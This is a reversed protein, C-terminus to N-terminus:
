GAAPFLFAAVARRAWATSYPQQVVGVGENSHVFAGGDMLIGCHKAVAGRRMRFLVMAGPAAEALPAEIMWRRAAEWMLERGSDEGWSRTYPPPAEPEQGHLGRWVGRVLGLCDCGAAQASQQHVYPTGLWAMALSQVLAPDAPTM